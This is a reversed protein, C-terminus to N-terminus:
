FHLLLLYIFFITLDLSRNFHFRKLALDLRKHIYPIFFFSFNWPERKRKKEFRFSFFIFFFSFFFFLCIHFLFFIEQYKYVKERERELFFYIFSLLEFWDSTFFFLLSKILEWINCVFVTKQKELWKKKVEEELLSNNINIIKLM